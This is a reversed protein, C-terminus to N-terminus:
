WRTCLRGMPAFLWLPTAVKGHSRWEEFQAELLNQTLEMDSLDYKAQIEINTLNGAENRFVIDCRGRKKLHTINAGGKGILQGHTYGEPVQVQSSRLQDAIKQPCM